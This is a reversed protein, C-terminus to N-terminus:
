WRWAPAAKDTSIAIEEAVYGMAQAADPPLLDGMASNIVSATIISHGREMSWRVIANTAVGKVFEPVREMKKLAEPTWEVSAEAQKDVSPVYTQSVVLVNCPVTRVLNETTAGVDMEPGSHVGIRGMVLLWPPRKRTSQLFFLKCARGQVHELLLGQRRRTRQAPQGLAPKRGVVRIATDPRRKVNM